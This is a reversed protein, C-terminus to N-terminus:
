EAGTDLMLSDIALADLSERLPSVAQRVAEPTQVVPIEPREPTLADRLVWAPSDSNAGVIPRAPEPNLTALGFQGAAVPTGPAAAPEFDPLRDYLRLAARHSGVPVGLFNKFATAPTQPFPLFNFRPAIIQDRLEPSLRQRNFVEQTGEFARGGVLEGTLQATQRGPQFNLDTTRFVFTADPQLDANVRRLFALIPAAPDDLGVQGFRVTSPDILTVDFESSGLVSARVLGVHDGNIHRQAHPNVLLPPTLPPLLEDFQVEVPPLTLAGELGPFDNDSGIFAEVRFQSGSVLPSGNVAEFIESFGEIAFELNPQAPDTEVLQVAGLNGEFEDSEGFFDRPADPPAGPPAVAPALRFPTEDVGAPNDLPFGAILDNLGDNDLDLRVAVTEGTSALSIDDYTEGFLTLFEDLLVPDVAQGDGDNDVDAIIVQQGTLPDIPQEIGFSLVDTEDDFALRVAELSIGPVRVNELLFDRIEEDEISEIPNVFGGDTPVQVVRPDTLPFDVLVNGTFTGTFGADLFIRRDLAESSVALRRGRRATPGHSRKANGFLWCWIKALWAIM